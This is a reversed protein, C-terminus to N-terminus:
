APRQEHPNQARDPPFAPFMPCGGLLTLRPRSGCRVAVLEALFPTLAEAVHHVYDAEAGERAWDITGRLWVTTMGLAAAPALNKAMDEIMAARRPDIAHRRVLEAYGAPDPKPVYGCAAIDFIGSFLAAIGLHSLINEAHRVTGNTFVLKRGPLAALAAVLAADPLVPSLDIRHVHDLFVTPDIDHVNMLGRLTTGHERFYLKQLRKAEDLDVSLLESIFEGMRRHIQDFLNCSAPYLTNDLDFIWTDIVTFDAPRAAPSATPLASM